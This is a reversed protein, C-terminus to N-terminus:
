GLTSGTWYAAMNGIFTNNSIVPRCNPGIYIAGGVDFSRNREFRNKEITVNNVDTCYLAGGAPGGIGHSYCIVTNSYLFCNRVILAPNHSAFIAGGQVAGGAVDYKKAYEIKCYEFVSTDTSIDTGIIKLGGWGGAVSNTDQWFASHDHITFVITDGPTGNARIAGEVNFSYHGQAEIYTGPTITLVVGSGIYLDGTVKVTDASWTTNPAITGSVYITQAILKTCSCFVLFLLILKITKM